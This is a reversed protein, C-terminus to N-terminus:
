ARAEAFPRHRVLPHAHGHQRRVQRDARGNQRADGGAPQVHAYREPIGPSSRGQDHRGRRRRDRDAAPQLQAPQRRQALQRVPRALSGSAHRRRGTDEGARDLFYALKTVHYTNLQAFRDMNAPDNSHHSLNHFPDRISTEPFVATSLERAFMLTSVRTIDAQLAIVQLDMLLKLHEQFTPPVGTPVDPLALDKRPQPKPGSFAGSSRGCTTSTSRRASPSRGAASGEAAGAVQGM